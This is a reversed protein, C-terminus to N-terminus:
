NTVLNNTNSQFEAAVFMSICFEININFWKWIKALLLINMVCVNTKDMRNTM